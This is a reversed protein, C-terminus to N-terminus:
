IRRAPVQITETAVSMAPIAAPQAHDRRVSGTNHAKQAELQALVAGDFQQDFARNRSAKGCSSCCGDDGSARCFLLSGLLGCLLCGGCLDACCQDMHLPPYYTPWISSSNALRTACRRRPSSSPSTFRAKYLLADRLM